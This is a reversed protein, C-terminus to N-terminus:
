ISLQTIIVCLRLIYFVKEYISPNDNQFINFPNEDNIRMAAINDMHAIPIATPMSTNGTSENAMMASIKTM